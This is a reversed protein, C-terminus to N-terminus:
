MKKLSVLVQTVILDAIEKLTEEQSIWGEMTEVLGDVHAEFEGPDLSLQFIIDKVCDILDSDPGKNKSSLHPPKTIVPSHFHSKPVFVKAYPSLKSPVVATDSLTSIPTKPNPTVPRESNEEHNQNTEVAVKKDENSKTTSIDSENDEDESAKNEYEQNGETNVVQGDVNSETVPSDNPSLDTSGAASFHITILIYFFQPLNLFLSAVPLLSILSYLM